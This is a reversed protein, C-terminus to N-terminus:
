SVTEKIEIQYLEGTYQEILRQHINFLCQMDYPLLNAHPYWRYVNSVPEYNWDQITGDELIPCSIFEKEYGLWFARKFHLSQIMIFSLQKFVRVTFSIAVTVTNQLM